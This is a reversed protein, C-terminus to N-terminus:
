DVPEGALMRDLWMLPEVVNIPHVPGRIQPSKLHSEPLVNKSDEPDYIGIRPDLYFGIASTAFYKIRERRFHQELTRMMRDAGGGLSVSCLEAFLDRAEDDSVKPFKPPDPDYSLLELKEAMALVRIDDFKTICVAVYHPLKGDALGRSDAMWQVLQSLVGSTHDFADGQDFERVPDYLFIIGSSDALNGILNSRLRGEFNAPGAIGGSADVLDLFIRVTEERQGYGFWWRRPITRLVRGTLVWRNHEIGQTANPFCRDRILANELNRLKKESAEDAGTVTWNYNDRQRDFAISLAALFTTKGTSPPGWM